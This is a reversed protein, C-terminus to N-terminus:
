ALRIALMLKGTEAHFDVDAYLDWLGFHDLNYLVADYTAIM